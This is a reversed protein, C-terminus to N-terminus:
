YTAPLLHYNLHLLYYRISLLYYTAPLYYTVQVVTPRRQLLHRVPRASSPWMYGFSSFSLAFIYCAKNALFTSMGSFSEGNFSVISIVTFRVIEMYVKQFSDWCSSNYLMHPQIFHDDVNRVGTLDRVM